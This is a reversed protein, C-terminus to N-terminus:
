VVEIFSDYVYYDDLSHRALAEKKATERNVATIVEVIEKERKHLIVRYTIADVYPIIWMDPMIRVDDYIGSGEDLMILYVDTDLGKIQHSEHNHSWYSVVGDSVITGVKWVDNGGVPDDIMVKVRDSLKYM